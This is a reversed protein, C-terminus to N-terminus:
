QVRVESCLLRWRKAFMAAAAAAAAAFRQTQQLVYDFGRNLEMISFYDQIHMSFIHLRIYPASPKRPTEDMNKANM